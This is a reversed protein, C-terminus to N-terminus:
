DQAPKTEPKFSIETLKKIITERKYQAINGKLNAAKGFEVLQEDSYGSFDVADTKTADGGVETAYGGNILAKAEKDSLSVKEDVTDIVQDASASFKPGALHTRMKIIM